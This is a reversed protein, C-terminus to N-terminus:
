TDGKSAIAIWPSRISIQFSRHYRELLGEIEFVTRPNLLMELQFLVLIFMVDAKEVLKKVAEEVFRDWQPHERLRRSTIAAKGLRDRVVARIDQSQASVICSLIRDELTKSDFSQLRSTVLIRAPATLTEIINMLVDRSDPDLEDLADFLLWVKAFKSCIQQLLIILEPLIPSTGRKKHSLYLDRFEHPITPLRIALQCIFSAVIIEPTQAEVAQSYECYFFAVGDGM